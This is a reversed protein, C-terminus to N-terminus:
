GIFSQFVGWIQIEALFHWLAFAFCASVAFFASLFISDIPPHAHAYRQKTKGTKGKARPYYAGADNANSAAWNNPYAMQMPMQYAHQGQGQAPAPGQGQQQFPLIHAHAHMQMQSYNFAHTAAQQLSGLNFPLALATAVPIPTFSPAATAGAVSAQQVASSLKESSDPQM